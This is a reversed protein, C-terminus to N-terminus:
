KAAEKKEVYDATAVPLGKKKLKASLLETVARHAVTFIPVGIFMGIIGFLGGSVTIAIIILLSDVGVKEGLIKPSLINGDLQQIVLVLAAFWIVKIPDAILIIFACPIAGIFPGFYPIMDTIGCVLAVLPYYPIGFLGFVVFNVVTIILSNIIKGSIFSSFVDDTFGIWKKASKNFKASFFSNSIKSLANLIQEKEILFYIAFIFSVVAKGLAVVIKSSYEIVVNAFDGVFGFMKGIGSELTGSVGEGSFIADFIGYNQRLDEVAETTKDVIIIVNEEVMSQLSIYSSVLQPIMIVVFLAIVALFSVVTCSVSLVRLHRKKMKSNKFAKYEYFNCVPHLLYAFIFGFFVPSIASLLDAFFNWLTAPFLIAFALAVALLITICTYILITTHRKTWEFGRM